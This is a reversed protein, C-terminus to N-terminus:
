PLLERLICISNLNLLPLNKWFTNQIVSQDSSMWLVTFQQVVSATSFLQTFLVMEM